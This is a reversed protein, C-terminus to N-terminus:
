HIRQQCGNFRWCIGQRMTTYGHQEFARDIAAFVDNLRTNLIVSHHLRAMFCGIIFTALLILYGAAMISWNRAQLRPLDRLQSMDSSLYWRTTSDITSIFLPGSLLLFGSLGLLLILTEQVGSMLKPANRSWLWLFFLYITLPVVAILALTSALMLFSDSM